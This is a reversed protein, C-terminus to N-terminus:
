CVAGTSNPLVVDLRGIFIRGRLVSDSEAFRCPLGYQCSLHAYVFAVCAWDVSWLLRGPVTYMYCKIAGWSRQEM